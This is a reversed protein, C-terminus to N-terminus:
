TLTSNVNAFRKSLLLMPLLKEIVKAGQASHCCVSAYRINTADGLSTLYFQQVPALTIISKTRLQRIKMSQQLTLRLEFLKGLVFMPKNRFNTFYPCFAKYCQARAKAKQFCIKGICIFSQDLTNKM